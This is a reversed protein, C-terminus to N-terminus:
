VGITIGGNEVKKLERMIRVEEQRHCSSCLTILNKLSNDFSILFPVIHHVHHAQRTENMTVGCEQCAFNDRAYIILRIKSWDDGYRGPGVFKSRGDIYSWPKWGMLKKGKSWPTHGKKFLQAPNNEKCYTKMIESQKRKHEESHEKGACNTNGIMRLSANNKWETTHKKGIRSLGINKRHEKSLKKKYKTIM